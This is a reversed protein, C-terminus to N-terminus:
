NAAEKMERIDGWRRCLSSQFGATCREGACGHHAIMHIPAYARSGVGEDGQYSAWPPLEMDSMLLRSNMPSSPPAAATRGSAAWACCGFIGVTPANTMPLILGSCNQR